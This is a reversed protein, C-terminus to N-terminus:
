IRGVGVGAPVTVSLTREKEVRGFGQCATCPNKVIQGQGNCTPCTVPVMYQDLEMRVDVHTRTALVTGM